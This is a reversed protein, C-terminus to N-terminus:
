LMIGSSRMSRELEKMAKDLESIVDDVASQTSASPARPEWGSRIPNRRARAARRAENAKAAQATTRVRSADTLHKVADYNAGLLADKGIWMKHGNPNTWTNAKGIAMFDQPSVKKGQNVRLILANLADTDAKSYRTSNLLNKMDVNHAVARAGARNVFEYGQKAWAYGGVDINALMTVNDFGNANYQKLANANFAEAFGKGQFRQSLQLFDHHVEGTHSITRQFQGASARGHGISGTVTIAGDQPRIRISSISTKFEGFQGIWMKEIARTTDRQIFGSKFTKNFTPSLTPSSPARGTREVFRTFHKAMHPYRALAMLMVTGGVMTTVIGASITTDKKRKRDYQERTLPENKFWGNERVQNIEALREKHAAERYDKIKDSIQRYYEKVKKGDREHEKVKIRGKAIDDLLDPNREIARKLIERQEPTM